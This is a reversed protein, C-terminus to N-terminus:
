FDAGVHPDEYFEVKAVEFGVGKNRKGNYREMIAARVRERDDGEYKNKETSTICGKRYVETFKTFKPPVLAVKYYWFLNEDEVEDDTNDSTDSGLSEGSSYDSDKEKPPSRAKRKPKAKKLDVVVKGNDSESDMEIVSEKKHSAAKKRKKEKDITIENDEFSLEDESGHKKKKKTDDKKKGSDSDSEDKKKKKKGSDSDSEDKKKKKKETDSDSEDRKRKTKGTDTDNKKKKGVDSDDDKKKKKGVDSDDDKKNNKKKTKKIDLDESDSDNKKSKEVTLDVKRKKNSDDPDDKKRKSGKKEDSDSKKTETKAATKKSANKVPVMVKYNAVTNIAEQNTNPDHVKEPYEDDSDKVKGKSVIKIESTKKPVVKTLQADDPITDPVDFSELADMNKTQKYGADYVIPRDEIPKRTAREKEAQAKLEMLVNRPPEKTPQETDSIEAPVEITNPTNQSM